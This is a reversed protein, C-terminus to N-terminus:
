AISMRASSMQTSNVADTLRQDTIVVEQLVTGEEKLEMNLLIDKDLKIKQTISEYGVYTFYVTASDTAHLTTSISYFGYANSTAGLQKEGIRLTVTLGPLAEGNKSDRVTGSLTVTQSQAYVQQGFVVSFLIILIKELTLFIFTQKRVM